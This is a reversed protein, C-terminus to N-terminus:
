ANLRLDPGEPRQRPPEEGISLLARNRLALVEEHTPLHSRKLKPPVVLSLSPNSTLLNHAARQIDSASVSQIKKLIDDKTCPKGEALTSGGLCECIEDNRELGVLLETTLMAKIMRLERDTPGHRAVSAIEEYIGKLLPKINAPKTSTSICFIGAKGDSENGTDIDGALARDNVLVKILRSSEGGALLRSLARYSYFDPDTQAVGEMGLLIHPALVQKMEEVGTGGVYRPPPAVPVPRPLLSATRAAVMAVFDEHRIPGAAAFVVNNPVYFRARYNRLDAASMSRLLKETGLIPRGGPQGPYALARMRDGARSDAQNDYKNIEEVVVDREGKAKHSGGEPDLIIKGDYEDEPVEAHFVMQACIDVVQPMDEPQLNYYNYATDDYNTEANLDGGMGEIIADVVGAKYAPTGKFTMHENMHSAGNLAAPEDYAGVGVWAGATISGPRELTVVRLGNPLVTMRPAAEAPYSEQVAPASAAPASPLAAPAPPIVTDGRQKKMMAKIEADSPMGKLPGVASLALKGSDLMAACARRLDDSTIRRLNAETEAIDLCRGKTLLQNLNRGCTGQATENVSKVGRLIRNRAAEMEQESFGNRLVDGLVQLSVSILERANEPGTGARICFTGYDIGCQYDADVNYVLGRKERVEVSLPSSMGGSLMEELMMFASFDPSLWTPAPFGFILNLQDGEMEERIDGGTFELPAHPKPAKSPKLDAFYKRVMDEAAAATIDGAFSVAIKEPHALFEAHRARVQKPRFSEILDPNGLYGAGQGGFFAAQFFFDSALAEPDQIREDFDEMVQERARDLEVPDFAANRIVDAMVDMVGPAHEALVTASFWRMDRHSSDNPDCAGFSCGATEIEQAIQLRSRTLTGADAAMQTLYTLGEHGPADNLSGDMSAIMMSVIGSGPREDVVGTLGNPLRFTHPM